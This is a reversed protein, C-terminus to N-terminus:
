KDLLYQIDVVTKVVTSPALFVLIVLDRVRCVTLPLLVKEICARGRNRPCKKLYAPAM